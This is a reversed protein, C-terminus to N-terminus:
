GLVTSFDPRPAGLIRVYCTRVSFHGHADVVPIRRAISDPEESSLVVIVSAGEALSLSALDDPMSPLVGVILTHNRALASSTSLADKATAVPHKWHHADLHFEAPPKRRASPAAGKDFAGRWPPTSAVRQEAQASKPPPPASAARKNPKVKRGLHLGQSASNVLGSLRQLLTADDVPSQSASARTVIKQVATLLSSPQRIKGSKKREQPASSSSNPIPASPASKQAYQALLSQLGKLLAAEERKRSTAGSGGQGGGGRFASGLLGGDYDLFLLYSCAPM